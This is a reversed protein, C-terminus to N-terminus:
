LDGLQLAVIENYNRVYLVTGVLTPVTWATGEVVEAEALIEIGEEGPTGLALTGDEDLILVNDGIRMLNAKAFGRQRFALEGTEVDLAALFTPGFDGSSAYVRNGFQAATQHMLQMKRSYWKEAASWGDGDRKVEVVRSGDAYASSSFILGDGVMMLPAMTTRSEQRLELQWLVEGTAPDLGGPEAM